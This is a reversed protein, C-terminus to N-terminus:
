IAIVPSKGLINKLLVPSLNFNILMSFKPSITQPLSKVPAQLPQELITIFAVSTPLKPPTVIKEKAQDPQELRVDNGKISVLLPVLKEKVQFPQELRVDNGRISVLLPVLKPLAQCFQELKLENGSISVLLPILKAAAQLSQELRVDKGNISVLLPVLKLLAQALQELRAVNGAFANSVLM